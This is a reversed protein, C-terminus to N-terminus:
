SNYPRLFTFKVRESKNIYTAWVFAYVCVQIFAKGAEKTVNSLVSPLPVANYLILILLQGAVVSFVYWTFMKPFIDRRGLFWYLLAIIGGIRFLLFGFEIIFINQITKGGLEGLRAWVNHSFYNNSILAYFQWLFSIGITVGLVTTWGGIAWGTEPTYGVEEKRKNLKTLLSIYLAMFIFTFWIITWNAIKATTNNSSVKNTQEDTKYLEFQLKDSIEKYDSKYQSVEEAPINDKLTKFDYALTIHSGNVLPTFDFQYSNNKVHLSEINFAWDDPMNLEMVYRITRPFSIGIPTNTLNESPDPIVEFISKAFVEFSQKGKENRHWLHPISYSENVTIENKLTDDNQEVPHEMKIGEFEKAYFELYNDDLQKNSIEAFSARIADAAGGSYITKVEFTSNGNFHANLTEDISTNFLFGPDVPMLKNEGDRIVLAFGYAPVYLNVLEGRQSSMTPDVYLYVNSSREIAVIAHDFATASPAEDTMKDRMETNVLAVYAPINEQQLIKALLLAKDKCDGFRHLYVDAPSHPQHTYTGIELGLYRVQDQVFRIALSTFMDNDGKALNHWTKIKNKLDEPLQYNYNNFISLGWKVVDQWNSFESISVYPYDTFWSPAHSKLEGIKLNPNEWKYMHLNGHSSEIANTAENYTKIFLKRTDNSIITLFYNSVATAYYFSFIAAYKKQFVPNSGAISYAVEIRDNKQVDKLIVFARKLGNYQFNSAETEEQVVKIQNSSLQNIIKGDRIIVIKYFVVAEFEPAFTVSVESANQVGSENILHRIFHTYETNNTLNVQNDVLELYYGDSISKSVPTKTFDANVKQIWAPESAILVKEKASSYISLLLLCILLQTNRM